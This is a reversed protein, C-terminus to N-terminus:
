SQPVAICFVAARKAPPGMDSFINDQAHPASHQYRTTETHRVQTHTVQLLWAGFTVGIDKGRGGIFISLLFRSPAPLLRPLPRAAQAVRLRREAPFLPHLVLRFLRGEKRLLAFGQGGELGLLRHAVTNPHQRIHM